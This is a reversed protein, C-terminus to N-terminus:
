KLKIIYHKWTLGNASFMNIDQSEVDLELGQKESLYILKKVLPESLENPSTMITVGESLKEVAYMLWKNMDQIDQRNMKGTKTVAGLILLMNDGEVYRIILNGGDTKETKAKSGTMRFAMQEGQKISNILDEGYHLAVAAFYEDDTSKISEYTKLYKM